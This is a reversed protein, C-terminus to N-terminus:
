ERRLAVMPDVRAARLAPLYSALLVVGGLITAVGLFTLPDNPSVGWLIGKMVRTVGLAAVLGIGLGIAAVKAGERMVMGLVAGTRAGLAMRVGIEHVRQGVSYAMMAYVGTIALLLAIVGFATFMGGFLRHQWLSRHEVEDMSAVEAVPVGSDMERVAARLAPALSAPQRTTRVLVTYADDPRGTFPLYAQEEAPENLRTLRLDPTVGIVTLWEGGLNIRRGLADEGPWYREALTRNVVV